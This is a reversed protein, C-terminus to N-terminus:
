GHNNCQLISSASSALLLLVEPRNLGDPKAAGTSAVGDNVDWELVHPYPAENV